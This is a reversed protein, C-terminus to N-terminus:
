LENHLIIGTRKKGIVSWDYAYQPIGLMIKTRPVASVAYNLVPRIESIPAIPGSPGGPRHWNYTMLFLKDASKGLTSYDYGSYHAPIKNGTMPPMAILVQMKSRHLKDALQKIFQNLNDRDQPRVMEFDIVLGKYDNRDLLSYINM